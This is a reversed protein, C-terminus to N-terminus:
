LCIRNSVPNERLMQPGLNGIQVASCHQKAFAVPCSCNGLFYVCHTIIFYKCLTSEHGWNAVSPFRIKTEDGPLMRCFNLKEEKAGESSDQFEIGWHRGRVKYTTCSHRPTSTKRGHGAPPARKALNYFATIHGYTVTIFSARQAQLIYTNRDLSDIELANLYWNRNWSILLSCGSYSRIVEALAGWSM